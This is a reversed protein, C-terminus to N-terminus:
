GVVGSSLGAMKDKGERDNSAFRRAAYNRPRGSRLNSPQVAPPVGVLRVERRGIQARRWWAAWVRCRRTGGGLGAQPWPLLSSQGCAAFTAAQEKAAFIM